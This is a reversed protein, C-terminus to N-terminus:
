SLLVYRIDLLPKNQVCVLDWVLTYLESTYNVIEHKDRGVVYLILTESVNTIAKELLVDNKVLDRDVVVLWFTLNQDM